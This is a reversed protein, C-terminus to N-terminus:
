EVAEYTLHIAGNEYAESGALTFKANVGDPFM